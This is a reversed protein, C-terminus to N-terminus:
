RAKGESKIPPEKFRGKDDYIPSIGTGGYFSNNRVRSDEIINGSGRIMETDVYDEGHLNGGSRIEYDDSTGKIYVDEQATIFGALFQYAAEEGYKKTIQFKLQKLNEDQEGMEYGYQYFDVKKEGM